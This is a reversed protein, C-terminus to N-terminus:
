NFNKIFHILVNELQYISEIEVYELDGHWDGGIPGIEIAPIGKESFFRTDASGHQGFLNVEDVKLVRKIAEVMKLVYPNKPSINVGSGVFKLEVKGDVVKKIEEFIEYPNLHPVYRIDLRVISKDPVRNYIDGGEMCALNLTSNEYFESGINMIPLRAIKEYNDVAKLIANEGEWPRSGHAPIGKSEIALHMIGKSQIAIGLNTPETCVAVEGMYGQEVLYKSCNFGGIEEDSVLQLMVQCPLKEDKLKIMAQMMAACGAKMDASGRGYIRGEREYPEFQEPKGSVVDLHGNLVITKDGSGITTVYSKYGNNEIITGLIGNAKLYKAAFEIAYNAKEVTSSDIRILEKLLEVLEM